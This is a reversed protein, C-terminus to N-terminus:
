RSFGGLYFPQLLFRGARLNPTVRVACLDHHAVQGRQALLHGHPVLHRPVHLVRLRQELQRFLGVVLLGRGLRGLVRGLQLLAVFPELELQRHGTRVVAAARDQRDM